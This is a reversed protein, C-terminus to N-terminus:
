GKVCIIQRLIHVPKVLDAQATMVKDIDKYAAPTEDLIDVDKRCEIGETMAAHDEVTFRRKAETRSMARGAGHSASMFSDRNGLGQVIYSKAGMSGPIIGLEGDKASIAGKRTLWVNKGFHREQVVYNHQCDIIELDKPQGLAKVVAAAMIARNVKAYRQALNVAALYDDFDPTGAPFYGLNTDPLTVFWRYCEAKALRTFYSGM